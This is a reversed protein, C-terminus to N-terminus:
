RGVAGEAPGAVVVRAGAGGLPGSLLLGDDGAGGADATVFRGHDGELEAEEAPGEAFAGSVPEFGRVRVGALVAEGEDGEDGGAAGAHLLPHERQGLELAHGALAYQGPGRPEGLEGDQAVGGGAAPPGGQPGPGVHDERQRPRLDAERAGPHARRVGIRRGVGRLPLVGGTM